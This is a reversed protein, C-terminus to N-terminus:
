PEFTMVEMTHTAFVDYVKIAIKYSEKAPVHVLLNLAIPAKFRQKERMIQYHSHFVEGNFDLDLEWFEIDSAFDQSSPRMNEPQPCYSEIGIEILCRDKDIKRFVPKKLVLKGQEDKEPLQEGTIIAFPPSGSRLLRYLTTQLALKSSDSLIWTRGLENCVEATTGSGAFFDAVLSGPHSASLLIRKILEKPKQTPFKLNERATPSLIKNIDVWWDQMLAGEENLKYRDGKVNTLGRQVTGSTYPRYQPNFTYESSRAYWFILDHKRQFHKRSSSGGGFCWVIENIFNDRGFVEDLLIKVYHSSHWDVHVFISGNEALVQRMLRLRSYLMDLFSDMGGEWTDQFAKRNIHRIDSYTGVSIRSHYDLETMYPPDIYILDIKRENKSSALVQLLDYNDGYYYRNNIVGDISVPEGMQEFISQNDFVPNVIIREIDRITYGAQSKMEENRNNWKLHASPRNNEM